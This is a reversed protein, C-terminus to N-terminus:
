VPLLLPHGAKEKETEYDFPFPSGKGFSLIVQTEEGSDLDFCIWLIGEKEDFDMSATSDETIFVDGDRLVGQEQTFTAPAYKFDAIEPM